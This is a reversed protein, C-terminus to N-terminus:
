ISNDDKIKYFQNDINVRCLHTQKFGKFISLPPLTTSLKKKTSAKYRAGLSLPVVSRVAFEPDYLEM